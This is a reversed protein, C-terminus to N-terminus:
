AVRHQHRAKEGRSRLQRVPGIVELVGVLKERERERGPGHATRDSLQQGIAALEFGIM